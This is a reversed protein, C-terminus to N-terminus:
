FKKDTMAKSKTQAPPFKCVWTRFAFVRDWSNSRTAWFLCFFWVFSLRPNGGYDDRSNIGHFARYKRLTIYIRRRARDDDFIYWSFGGIEISWRQMRTKGPSSGKKDWEHIGANRPFVGERFETM